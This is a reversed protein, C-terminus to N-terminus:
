RTVRGRLTVADIQEMRGLTTSTDTRIRVGNVLYPTEPFAFLADVPVANTTKNVEDTYTVRPTPDRGTWVTNWSGATDRVDIQYVFGNGCTERVIVGNAYVPTPVGLSIYELTGDRNLPAWAKSNGGYAFVNPAGLAQTPGYTGSSYASSYGLVTSAYQNTTNPTVSIAVMAVASESSGDSAKYTFSDTGTFALNPAYSFSGDPNLIVTGNAAPSVLIASLSPGDVDSDNGLVGPAVVALPTDQSAGYVDSVAVPPDIVPTVTISVTVVGSESVGDSAKYTFSDSGNFNPNPSYSFSGNANLILTGNAAPSVLIASLSQGEPDTDNGLVGPADLVGPTDEATSYADNAAVPPRNVPTVTISVTAVGSEALGDSAQYSFSDAGVFSPNPSYSFSGNANLTVTGSAASSVLIASLSPGDVDSDNGLVGPAPVVLPTDQPTGYVDNVVVPADNVAAVTIGVTAVASESAGDSAKYTFSDSGSFNAQPQYTFSGNPSLTLTGYGPGSALLATLSDNDADSDNSLVGTAAGVVLAEDELIAYADNAAVPPSGSAAPRGRLTVADIQERRGSTTSTSIRVRVGAVLYTTESFAFLANVPMANTTKNVEDTYTV